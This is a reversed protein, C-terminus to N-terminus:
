RSQPWGHLYRQDTFRGPEVRNYCWELCRERWWRVADLARADNRFVVFGSNYEGGELAKQARSPPRRHPVLLICGSQLEHLLLTPDAYFYLDADVLTLIEIERRHVLSHLLAAPKATQCYEAQSRTSRIAALEPDDHELEALGVIEINPLALKRLVRETTEDM